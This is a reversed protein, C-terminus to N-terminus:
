SESGGQQLRRLKLEVRFRRDGGLDLYRRYHEIAGRPDDLLEEHLLALDYYVDPNGPDLVLSRELHHRAMRVDEREMGIVGLGLHLRANSPDVALLRRYTAEAEEIRGARLLCGALCEGVRVDDPRSGLVASYERAADSWQGLERHLDALVERGDVFDPVRQVFGTEHKLALAAKGEDRYHLALAYHGWAFDPDLEISKRFRFERLVPNTELRGLLCWSLADASESLRKRYEERVEERKGSAIMADQYRRHAELSRPVLELVRRYREIADVLLGDRELSEGEELLSRAETPMESYPDRPIDTVVCGSSLLLVALVHTVAELRSRM